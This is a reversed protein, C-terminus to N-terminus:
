PAFTFVGQVNPLAPFPSAPAIRNLARSNLASLFIMLAPASHTRRFSECLARSDRSTSQKSDDNPQSKATGHDPSKKEYPDALALASGAFTALALATLGHTRLM